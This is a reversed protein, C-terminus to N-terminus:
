RRDWPGPRDRIRARDGRHSRGEPQLGHLCAARMLKSESHRGTATRLGRVLAHSLAVALSASAGAEVKATIWGRDSVRQLFENLLVTKGVGRLGHLVWSREGQGRTEARRRLVDFAELLPERGALLPPRCGPACRNLRTRDHDM